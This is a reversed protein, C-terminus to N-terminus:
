KCVNNAVASLTYYFFTLKVHITSEMQYTNPSCYHSNYNYRVKQSGSITRKISAHRFSGSKRGGPVRSDMSREGSHVSWVVPSRWTSRHRFVAKETPNSIGEFIWVWVLLVIYWYLCCRCQICLGGRFLFSLRTLPVGCLWVSCIAHKHPLSQM